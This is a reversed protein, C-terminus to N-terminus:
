FSLLRVATSGELGPVFQDFQRTKRDVFSGLLVPRLGALDFILLGRVFETTAQFDEDNAFFNAM